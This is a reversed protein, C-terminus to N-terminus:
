GMPKAAAPSITSAPIPERYLLPEPLGDLDGVFYGRADGECVTDPSSGAGLVAAKVESPTAYPHGAKYL